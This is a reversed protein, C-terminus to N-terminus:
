APHHLPRGLALRRRAVAHRRLDPGLDARDPLRRRLALDPKRGRRHVGVREREMAELEAEVAFVFVELDALADWGDGRRSRPVRRASPPLLAATAPTSTRPM